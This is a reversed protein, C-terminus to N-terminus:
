QKEIRTKAAKQGEPKRTGGECVEKRSKAVGWKAGGGERLANAGLEAM